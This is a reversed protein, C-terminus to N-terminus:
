SDDGKWNKPKLVAQYHAPTRGRAERYWKSFELLPPEGVEGARYADQRADMEAELEPTPEEPPTRPANRIGRGGLTMDEPPESMPVDKLIGKLANIAHRRKREHEDTM